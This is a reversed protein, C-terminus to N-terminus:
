IFFIDRDSIIKNNIIMEYQQLLQTNKCELVLDYLIKTFDNEEDSRTLDVKEEEKVKKAKFVIKVGSKILENYKKSKKFAKFEDYVGSVTIKVKDKDHEKIKYNEINNTDTYIIKKKPLELDFENLIYKESKNKLQLIPIINDESEGFATQISSGCYYINNQIKQKSHIHGSIIEPYTENWKDGDISVIAGMKCGQFEQHCFIIDSQKWLESQTNLAEIFRGPPVYPCFTFQFNELTVHQVTDVILVNEWNKMGNMWHNTTLFQQNNCNHVVTGNELLFKHNGDTEFGYYLTEESPEVSISTITDKCTYGYLYRRIGLPLELYDVVSIELDEISKLFDICQNEYEFLVNHFKFNKTNLYYVNWLKHDIKWFTKYPRLCLMHYENVIYSKELLQNIKYMRTRGYTKSLVTRPTLDNGMVKDGTIIDQINKISNDYLLINTDKGFCMDHNGVLIVTKSINRLIEILEYAKNLASVHIREHTHLLDGLIVILNPQERLCLQKIKQIFLNVEEINDTKFHPDGIAVIKM